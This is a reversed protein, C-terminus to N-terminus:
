FNFRCALLQLEEYEKMNEQLNEMLQLYKFLTDRPWMTESKSAAFSTLTEAVTTEWGKSIGHSAVLLRQISQLVDTDKRVENIARRLASPVYPKAEPEDKRGGEESEDDGQAGDAAAKLNTISRQINGQVALEKNLKRRLKEFKKSKEYEAKQEKLEVSIKDFNNVMVGVFINRFVFAGLWVWSIIYLETLVPDAYKLVEKNISDWQDLTLLQFLTMLSQGIDAFATKYTLGHDNSLTFPRFLYVAVISYTYAVIVVLVMIYTMSQFAQFITLIILRLNSSRLVIKFIRLIRLPRADTGIVSVYVTSTETLNVIEPIASQVVFYAPQSFLLDVVAVRVILTMVLDAINWGSNWFEEFNDIWKLLIEIVFVMLSFGDLISIFQFVAWNQDQSEWLETSVGIFIAELAIVVWVFYFFFPNRVVWSAWAGIPLSNINRTRTLRRDTKAEANDEEAAQQSRKFVQFKILQHANEMLIKARADPDEYVGAIDRSTHTPSSVNHKDSINDLLQFEEILRSRFIQPADAPM